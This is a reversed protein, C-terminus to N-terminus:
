RSPSPLNSTPKMEAAIADRAARLAAQQAEAVPQARDTAVPVSFRIWLTAHEETATDAILMEIRGPTIITSQITLNIM